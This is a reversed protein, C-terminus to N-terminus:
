TDANEDGRVIVKMDHAGVEFVAADLSAAFLELLSLYVLSDKKFRYYTKGVAAGSPEVAQEMAAKTIRFGLAPPDNPIGALLRLADAVQEDTMPIPCTQIPSLTGTITIGYRAAVERMREVTCVHVSTLDDYVVIDVM